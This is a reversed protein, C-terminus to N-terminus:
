TGRQERDVLFLLLCVLTCPGHSGDKQGVAIDEGGTEAAHTLPLQSEPIRYAGDWGKWWGVRLRREKRLPDKPQYM